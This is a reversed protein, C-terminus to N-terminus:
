ETVKEAFNACIACAITVYMGSVWKVLVQEPTSYRDFKVDQEFYCSLPKTLASVSVLMTVVHFAYIAGTIIQHEVGGNSLISADKQEVSAVVRHTYSM